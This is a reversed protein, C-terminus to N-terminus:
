DKRFRLIYNDKLFPAAPKEALVFGAAAIERIVDQEGLRVHALVEAPSQGADRHVEVIILQGRRRLLRWISQLMSKPYELHHYTDGLFVYDFNGGDKRNVNLKTEQGLHARVNALGHREARNTIYEVWAPNIEVATVRGREGVLRSFEETMFGSGAGVDAIDDGEQLGILSAIRARQRYIERDESQLQMVLPAIRSSKWEANIGPRVSMEPAEYFLGVDGWSVAILAGCLILGALFAPVVRMATANPRACPAPATKAGAPGAKKLVASAVASIMHMPVM